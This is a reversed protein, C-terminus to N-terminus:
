DWEEAEIELDELDNYKVGLLDALQCVINLNIKSIDRVNAPRFEGTYPDQIEVTSSNFWYLDKLAEKVNKYETM